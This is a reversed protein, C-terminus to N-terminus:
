IKDAIVGNAFIGALVFVYYTWIVSVLLCYLFLGLYGITSLYMVSFMAISYVIVTCLITLLYSKFYKAVNCNILKVAAVFNVFNLYSPKIVYRCCMAIGFFSVFLLVLFILVNFIVSVYDTVGSLLSNFLYIAKFFLTLALLLVIASLVVKFGSIFNQLVQLKPLDPSNNLRSKLILMSYGYPVFMVCLGVVPLIYYLPSSKGDNMVPAFFGSWNILFNSIFVFLLLLLYRKWFNEAKFMYKFSDLM